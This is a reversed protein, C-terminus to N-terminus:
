VRAGDARNQSTDTDDPEGHNRSRGEGDSPALDTGALTEAAISRASAGNVYGVLYIWALATWGQWALIAVFGVDVILDVTRLWSPMRLSRFIDDQSKTRQHRFQLVFGLMITYVIAQLWIFFRLLNRAGEMDLRFACYLAAIGLANM